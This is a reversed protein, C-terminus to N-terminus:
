NSWCELRTGEPDHFFFAQGGMKCNRIPDVEINKDLLKQYTEPLDDVKFTLTIGAGGASQMSTREADAVSLRAQGSVAFEVLWDTTGLIPFNLVDRYFAVNESWHTCYLITNFTEVTM